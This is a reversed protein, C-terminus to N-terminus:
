RLRRLRTLRHLKGTSGAIGGIRMGNGDSGLRGVIESVIGLMSMANGDSGGNTIGGMVIGMGDSGVMGVIDSVMGLMSRAKGDSGGNRM